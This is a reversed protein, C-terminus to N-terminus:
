IYENDCFDLLKGGLKRLAEVSKYQPEVIDVVAVVLWHSVKNFTFFTRNNEKLEKNVFDLIEVDLLKSEVMGREDKQLVILTSVDAKPSKLRDITIM